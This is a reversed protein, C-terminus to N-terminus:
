IWINAKYDTIISNSMAESVTEDVAYSRRDQQYAKRVADIRDLRAKVDLGHSRATALQNSIESLQKENMLTGSAAVINNKAKFEIVAREAVAAQERLAQLREQLWDGARRNAQYKANLQEFIYADLMANAIKAARDPDHSRFDIRLMYSLGVRRVDLGGM